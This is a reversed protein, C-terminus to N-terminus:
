DPIGILTFPAWYAPHANRQALAEAEASDPSYSSLNQGMLTILSAHRLAQAAGMATPGRMARITAELLGPATGDDIRWHSGIISRAGAQFFARVLESHKVGAWDDPSLATNCASLILLKSDLSLTIIEDSTLLGDDRTGVGPVTPTLVLAAERLGNDGAVVGHTAFLIVEAQALEGVDSLKQLSRETAADYLKVTSKGAPFAAQLREAELRSGPLPPLTAILSRQDAIKPDPVGSRNIPVPPVPAQRPTTGQGSYDPEAFAVFRGTKRAQTRSTRITKLEAVGPLISISHSKILWPALRFQQAEDFTPDPRYPKTLLISPPLSTLAGTPVIILKDAEGILNSIAADGFLAEYLGNAGLFDFPQKMQDNCTTQGPKCPDLTVRLSEVADAVERGTFGIEAWASKQQSIAFILGRESAEGILPVLLLEDPKLLARGSTRQLEAVSLPEPALFGKLQDLESLLSQAVKERESRLFRERQELSARLSAAEPGDVKVFGAEDRGSELAKSAEEIERTLREVKELATAQGSTRAFDVAAKRGLARTADSVLGPQMTEFAEVLFAHRASPPETQAVAWLARALQTRCEGTARPDLGGYILPLAAEDYGLQSLSGCSRRLVKLARSAQGEALLARGYDSWLKAESSWNSWIQPPEERNESDAILRAYVESEAVKGQRSLALAYLQLVPELFPQEDTASRMEKWAGHLIATASDFQRAEILKGAALLISAMPPLTGFQDAFVVNQQRREEPAVLKLLESREYRNSELQHQGSNGWRREQAHIQKDIADLAETFRHQMKLSWMLSQSASHTECHTDGLSDWLVDRARLYYSSGERGREQDILLRGLEGYVFGTLPHSPGYTQEMVELIRRLKKETEFSSSLTGQERIQTEEILKETESREAETMVRVNAPIARPNIAPTDQGCSVTAPERASPLTLRAAFVPAALLNAILVATTALDRFAVTGFWTFAM